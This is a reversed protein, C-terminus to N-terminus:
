KTERDELEDLTRGSDLWENVWNPRRGRGPRWVQWPDNPNRYIIGNSVDSEKPANKRETELNRRRLEADINQMLESLEKDSLKQLNLRNMPKAEGHKVLM